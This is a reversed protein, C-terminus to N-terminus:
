RRVIFYVSRACVHTFPIILLRWGFGVLPHCSFFTLFTVILLLLVYPIAAMVDVWLSLRRRRLDYISMLFVFLFYLVLGFPWSHYWPTNAIVFPEIHNGQVMSTGDSRQAQQMYMMLEEPLFLRQESDMPQDAKRGFLLNIGANAWSYRGIYHRIFARYTQGTYGIYPSSVSDKCAKCILRYPRTACNDFVFNYLYLKNEPQANAILEQWLTEREEPRLILEQQYVARKEQEYELMFWRMSTCGLEYWTEGRVFKWYFHDTNFDFIGYNFVVDLNNEPDYVRLATHGFRAYLEEGPACTILSIRANDSLTQAQLGLSM